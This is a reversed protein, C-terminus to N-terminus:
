NIVINNRGIEKAKFLRKDSIKIVNKLSEKEENIESFEAIGCSFTFKIKQDQYQFETNNIDIRLRELINRSNEKDCNILLVIFEEGGYRAVLDYPRVSKKVRNSFEKLVYDGILHGYEDNVKKFFDIDLMAISFNKNERKAYEMHIEARNCFFRRNNLLTLPDTISDEFLKNERNKKAIASEIRAKLIIEDIPKTVYDYAGLLLGKKINTAEDKATAFIIPIKEFDYDLNLKEAIDFGNEGPLMIDLLILDPNFELIFKEINEGNELILIEYDFLMKKYVYRNTLDDEVILIKVKNM